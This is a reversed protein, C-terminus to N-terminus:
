SVEVSIVSFSQLPQVTFAAGGQAVQVFQDQSAFTVQLHLPDIAYKTDDRLATLLAAADITTGPSLSTFLQKLKSTIQTKVQDASVGAVAAAQLTARVEVPISQGGSATPKDYQDAEFAIDEPTIQVAAGTPTAFDAGASGPSGGKAALTLVADVVRDDALLAAVLPRVRIAEGVGKKKIEAALRERVSKHVQEVISPALFGGALVLKVAIRLSVSAAPEKIVHIGAPRLKEIAELVAPPLVGPAPPPDTLSISLKIEGPVGNPMEILGVDRVDPLQFLGNVIAEVTGRNSGLLAVRARARLEQDTEDDSVRTTPKENTVQDIGAIVKQVVQLVGADVPPTSKSAGRVRVEAVSEGALMERTEITEYRIKDGKDTIPTGAPITIDGRLGALRRFTVSGTPGGARFRQYGLLAVVRDLSSGTATELFASDYALNLQAYLLALEKSVAELVTRVVSGINLDNVVVPDTTRPYYNVSISTGPAPKRGFPLFRIRNLDELDQPNPVLEYDNLSFTYPIPPDDESVAAIFGSLHSVRRVPRRLLVVDPVVVPRATPDYDIPHTEGTVGQTLNTLVDRVVDPYIRNIFTV